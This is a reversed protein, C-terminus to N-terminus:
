RTTLEMELKEGETYEGGDEKMTFYKVVSVEREGDLVGSVDCTASEKPVGVAEFGKCSSLM